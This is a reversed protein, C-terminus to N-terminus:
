VDLIDKIDPYIKDADFYTIKSTQLFLNIEEHYREEFDQLFYALREKLGRQAPESLFLAIKIWKGYVAHIYFGRYKIEDMSDSGSIESVFSDMASLFGSVLDKDINLDERVYNILPLGSTKDIILLTRFINRYRPKRVLSKERELAEEKPLIEYMVFKKPNYSDSESFAYSSLKGIRSQARIPERPLKKIYDDRIETDHDKSKKGKTIGLVRQHIPDVVYFWVNLKEM